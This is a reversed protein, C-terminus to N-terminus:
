AANATIKCLTMGIIQNTAAFASIIVGTGVPILCPTPAAVSGALLIGIVTSGTKLTVDVPGPNTVLLMGNGGLDTNLATGGVVALVYADRASDGLTYGIQSQVVAVGVPPTSVATNLLGATLQVTNDLSM